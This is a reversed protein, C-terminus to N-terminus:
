FLVKYGFYQDSTGLYVIRFHGHDCYQTFEKSFVRFVSRFFQLDDVSIEEVYEESTDNLEDVATEYSSKGEITEEAAKYGANRGENKATLLMLCM